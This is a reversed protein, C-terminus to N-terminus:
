LSRPLPQFLGHSFEVRLSGGSWASCRLPALTPEERYLRRAAGAPSNRMPPPGGQDIVIPEASTPHAGCRFGNEHSSPREAIFTGFLATLADKGGGALVGRLRFERGEDPNGLAVVSRRATPRSGADPPATAACVGDTSVLLLSRDIGHLAC